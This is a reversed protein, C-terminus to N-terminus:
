KSAILLLIMLGLVMMFYLIAKLRGTEFFSQNNSQDIENILTLQHQLIPDKNVYQKLERFM